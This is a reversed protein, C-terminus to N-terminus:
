IIHVKIEVHFIKWYIYLFLKLKLVIWEQSVLRVVVFFFVKFDNGLFNIKVSWAFRLLYNLSLLMKKIEQFIMEQIKWVRWEEGPFFCMNVKARIVDICNNVDQCIWVFFFYFFYVSLTINKSLFFMSHCISIIIGQSRNALSWLKM